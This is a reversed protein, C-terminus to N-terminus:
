LESSATIYSPSSYVYAVVANGSATSTLGFRFGSYSAGDYNVACNTLTPSLSVLTPNARKIVAFPLTVAWFQSAGSAYVSLYPYRSTSDGGSALVEYYRQCLALETGYPRYDFSTAQTGVELQIGTIYFTAGSTGVVNVQGTAGYATSGTWAGASQTYLSGCGLSWLVQMGNSNNTLWAGAGAVGDGPITISIQTWTNAVPISYSFPYNRSSGNNTIAGGFTGTLSSYALFSLTITKASATGFSLDAINYGEIRQDLFLYDGGGVTVASAVTCALYNTFGSAIRTAYGTETTSPTQQITFKSAQTAQYAFRDLTYSGAAPTVSAGANRQDIVMAGNIIRNRLSTINPSIVGGTSSTLNDINLTGYTAM